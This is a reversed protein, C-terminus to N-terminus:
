IPPPPLIEIKNDRNGANFIDIRAIKNQHTSELISAFMNNDSYVPALLVTLLVTLIATLLLRKKKSTLIIM